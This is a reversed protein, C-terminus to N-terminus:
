KNVFKKLIHKILMPDKLYYCKTKGAQQWDVVGAVKLITLHQSLNSQGVDTLEKIDTVCKKGELLKDVVALRIPHGIAKFFGATQSYELKM